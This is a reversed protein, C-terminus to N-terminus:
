VRKDWFNCADDRLKQQEFIRTGEFRLLSDNQANYQPWRQLKASNPNGDKAFGLWYSVINDVLWRESRALLEVRGFVFPLESAHPVLVGGTAPLPGGDNLDLLVEESPHAFHYLFVPTGRRAM